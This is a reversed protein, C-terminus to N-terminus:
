QAKIAPHTRRVGGPATLSKARHPRHAGNKQFWKVKGIGLRLVAVPEGVKGRDGGNKVPNGQLESARICSIMIGRSLPFPLEMELKMVIDISVCAVRLHM